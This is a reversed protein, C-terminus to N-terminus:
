SPKYLELPRIGPKGRHPSRIWGAVAGEGEWPLLQNQQDQSFPNAGTFPCAPFFAPDAPLTVRVGANPGFCNGTGNGDTILDRGNRDVDGLGFTNGRVQNGVLARAPQNEPRRLLMGEVALVGGLFNGYIRNGEVRNGRGGLLVVGTGVPALAPTGQRRIPFPAGRHYNFNNWFIDNGTIVNDEEPPYKRDDLANPVVGVANNFFRSKTITAYRMNTGSFGIPNGWSKAHRVMARMPKSQPPTQGIYLGADDAYYAEVHTMLGGKTNFAYLGYAGTHRAVVHRLTYGVVNVIFAGNARYDRIRFGVIRVKDAGNVYVGNQRKDGGDLVAHHGILRLYRKRRGKIVVAEHYVGHRVRVTDGARAHDVAAQISRFDCSRRHCVTHTHHPGRPRPDLKGPLGPEPYAQAAAAAPLALVGTLVVAIVASRRM